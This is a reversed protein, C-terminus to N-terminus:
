KRGGGDDATNDKAATKRRNFTLLKGFNFNFKKKQVKVQKLV